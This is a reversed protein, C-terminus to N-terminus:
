SWVLCHLSTSHGLPLLHIICGFVKIVLVKWFNRQTKLFMEAGKKWEAEQVEILGM